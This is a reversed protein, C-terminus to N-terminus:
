VRGFDGEKSLHLGMQPFCVLRKNELLVWLRILISIIAHFILKLIWLLPMVRNQLMLCRRLMKLIGRLRKKWSTCRREQWSKPHLILRLIHIDRGWTISVRIILCDMGLVRCSCCLRNSSRRWWELMLNLLPVGGMDEVWLRDWM